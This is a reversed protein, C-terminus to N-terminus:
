LNSLRSKMVANWAHKFALWDCNKDVLRLEPLSLQARLRDNESRLKNREEYYRQAEAAWDVAKAGEPAMRHPNSM